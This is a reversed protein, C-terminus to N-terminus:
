CDVEQALPCVPCPQLSAWSLRVFLFTEIFPHKSSKKKEHYMFPPLTNGFDLCGTKYIVGELTWPTFLGVGSLPM